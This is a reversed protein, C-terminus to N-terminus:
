WTSDDTPANCAWSAFFHFQCAVSFLRRTPGTARFASLSNECRYQSRVALRLAAGTTGNFEKSFPRDIGARYSVEQRRCCNGLLIDLALTPAKLDLITISGHYRKPLRDPWARPFLQFTIVHQSHSAVNLSKFISRRMYKLSESERQSSIATASPRRREVEITPIVVGFIQPRAHSATSGTHLERNSLSIMPIKFISRRTYGLSKGVGGSQKNRDQFAPPASGPHYLFRM